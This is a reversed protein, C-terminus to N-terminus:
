HNNGNTSIAAKITSAMDLHEQIHPKYKAAYAKIPQATGNDAETTFLNLATQHATVQSSIYMSDFAYGSMTQLSDFMQKNVSDMATPWTVNAYTHSLSDLEHLAKTHETSMMQGFARVSSDSGMQSALTGLQVETMNSMAATEAFQRDNDGLNNGTVNNNKQNDDDDNCATCAFAVVTMVYIWRMMKM